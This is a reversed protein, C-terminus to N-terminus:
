AQAEIIEDIMDKDLAAHIVFLDEAWAEEERGFEQSFWKVTYPNYPTSSPIPVFGIIRSIIGWNDHWKARWPEAYKRTVIAGEGFGEIRMMRIYEQADNQTPRRSLLYHVTDPAKYRPLKHTSALRVPGERTYLEEPGPPQRSNGSGGTDYEPIATKHFSPIHIVSPKEFYLKGPIGLDEEENIVDHPRLPNKVRKHTQKM